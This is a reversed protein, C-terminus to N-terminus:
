RLGELILTSSIERWQAWNELKKTGWSRERCGRSHSWATGTCARERVNWGSPSAHQLLSFSCEWYGCHAPMQLRRWRQPLRAWPWLQICIIKICKHLVLSRHCLALAYSHRVGPETYVITDFGSVSNLLTCTSLESSLHLTFRTAEMHLETGQVPLSTFKQNRLLQFSLGLILFRFDVVDWHRSNEM